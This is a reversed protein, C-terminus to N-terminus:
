CPQKLLERVPDSRILPDAFGSTLVLLGVRGRLGDQKSIIERNLACFAKSDARTSGTLLMFQARM